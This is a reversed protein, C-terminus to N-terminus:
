INTFKPIQNPETAFTEDYGLSLLQFLFREEYFYTGDLNKSLLRPNFGMREILLSVFDDPNVNELISNIQIVVGNEM